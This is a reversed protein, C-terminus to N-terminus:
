RNLEEIDTKIMPQILVDGNIVLNGCPLYGEAMLKNVDSELPIYFKSLVLRYSSKINVKTEDIKIM